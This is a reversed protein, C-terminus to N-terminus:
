HCWCHIWNCVFCQLFLHLSHIPFRFGCAKQLRYSNPRQYPCKTPKAPAWNDVPNTKSITRDTLPCGMSGMHTAQSAQTSCPKSSGTPTYQSIYRHEHQECLFEKFMTKCCHLRSPQYVTGWPKLHLWHTGFKLVKDLQPWHLLVVQLPQISNRFIHQIRNLPIFWVLDTYCCLDRM